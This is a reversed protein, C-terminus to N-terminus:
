NQVPITPSHWGGFPEIMANAQLPGWSGPEYVFVPKKLRLIPDVVRWAAEVADQRAFLAADGIM